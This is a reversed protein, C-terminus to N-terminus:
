RAVTLGIDGPQAGPLVKSHRRKGQQHHNGQRKRPHSGHQVVMERFAMGSVLVDVETHCVRLVAVIVAWEVAVVPEARQEIRCPM